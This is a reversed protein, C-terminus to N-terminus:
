YWVAVPFLPASVDVQAAESCLHWLVVNLLPENGKCITSIMFCRKSATHSLSGEGILKNQGDRKLSM